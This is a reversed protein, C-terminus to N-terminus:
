YTFDYAYWDTEVDWHSLFFLVRHLHLPLTIKSLEAKARIQYHRGKELNQLSTIKLSDIKIMLQQAEEFSSTVATGSSDWSRDIQFEKKLNDYTIVHTVKLDVLTKNLWYNRTENLKIYFLFTTPVGSMIVKKTKENFAGTANLYLLLDDRNNTIVINTLATEQATLIQQCFFLLGLGIFLVKKM